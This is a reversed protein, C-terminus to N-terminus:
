LNQNAPDDVIVPAEIVERELVPIALPQPQLTNLSPQLLDYYHQERKLLEEKSNCSFKELQYIKVNDWGITNLHKYVKQEPNVKAASKHYWVRNKLMLCTSGVYIQDDVTNVLKYVKGNLYDNKKANVLEGAIVAEERKRTAYAKDNAIYKAKDAIYYQTLRHKYCEGCERRQAPFLDKSIPVGDPTLCKISVKKNCVKFGKPIVVNAM